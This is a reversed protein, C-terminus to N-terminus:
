MTISDGMSAHVIACQSHYTANCGDLVQLISAELGLLGNLHEEEGRLLRGSKPQAADAPAVQVM